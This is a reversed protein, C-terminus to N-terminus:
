WNLAMEALQRGFLQRRTRQRQSSLVGQCDIADGDAILPGAPARTRSSSGDREVPPQNLHRVCDPIIDDEMLQRMGTLVVMGLPKPPQHFLQAWIVSLRLQPDSLM